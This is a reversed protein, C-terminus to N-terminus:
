IVAIQNYHKNLSNRFEALNDQYHHSLLRPLLESHLLATETYLFELNRELKSTLMQKPPLPTKCKEPSFIVAKRSIARLMEKLEGEYKKKEEGGLPPNNKAYKKAAM